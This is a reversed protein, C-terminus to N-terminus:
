RNMFIEGWPCHETRIVTPTLIERATVMSKGVIHLLITEYNQGVCVKHHVTDAFISEFEDIVDMFNDLQWKIIAPTSYDFGM